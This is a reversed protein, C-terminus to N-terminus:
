QLFPGASAPLPSPERDGGLGGRGEKRSPQSGPPLRAQDEGSKCFPSAKRGAGDAGLRTSCCAQPWERHLKHSLMWIKHYSLFFKFLFNKEARQRGRARVTCRTDTNPISWLQWRCFNRSLWSSSCEGLM